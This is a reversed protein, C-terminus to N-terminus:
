RVKGSEIRVGPGYEPKFVWLHYHNVTDTVESEPPFVQIAEREPGVVQNKADQLTRWDGIPRKDRRHVVIRFEFPRSGLVHHREVIFTEDTYVADADFMNPDSQAQMTYDLNLELRMPASNRRSQSDSDRRSNQWKYAMTLRALIRSLASKTAGAATPIAAKIADAAAILEKESLARGLFEGTAGGITRTKKTALPQM